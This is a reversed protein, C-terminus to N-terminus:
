MRVICPLSRATWLNPFAQGVCSSASAAAPESPLNAPGVALALIRPWLQRPAPAWDFFEELRRDHTEGEVALPINWARVKLTQPVRRNFDRAAALVQDIHLRLAAIADTQGTAPEDRDDATPAPGPRPPPPTPPLALVTDRAEVFSEKLAWANSRGVTAAATRVLDNRLLEVQEAADIAAVRALYHRM